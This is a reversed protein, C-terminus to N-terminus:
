ESPCPFQTPSVGTGIEEGTQGLPYLFSPFPFQTTENTGIMQLEPNTLLPDPLQMGAIIGIGEAHGLPYKESPYPFQRGFTTDSTVHALPNVESPSPFQMQSDGNTVGEYLGDSGGDYYTVVGVGSGIGDVGDQGDPKTESPNPFQTAELTGTM